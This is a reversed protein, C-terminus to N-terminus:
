YYYNHISVSAIFYNASIINGNKQNWIGCIKITYIYPLLFYVNHSPVPNKKTVSCTIEFRLVLCLLSLIQALYNEIIIRILIIIYTKNVILVVGLKSGGVSALTIEIVTRM